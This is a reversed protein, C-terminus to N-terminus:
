HDTGYGDFIVRGKYTASLYLPNKPDHWAYHLTLERPKGSKTIQFVRYVPHSFCDEMDMYDLIEHPYRLEAFTEGDETVGTVLYQKHYADM